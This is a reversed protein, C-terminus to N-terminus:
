TQLERRLREIHAASARSKTARARVSWVHSTDFAVRAIAERARTAFENPPPANFHEHGEAYMFLSRPCQAVFTRMAVGERSTFGHGIPISSLKLGFMLTPRTPWSFAVDLARVIADNHDSHMEFDTSEFM